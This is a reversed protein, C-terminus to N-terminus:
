QRLNRLTAAIPNYLAVVAEIRDATSKHGTADSIASGVAGTMEIPTVKDLLMPMQRDLRAYVRSLERRLEDDMALVILLRGIRILWHRLVPIINKM